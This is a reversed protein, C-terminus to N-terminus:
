DGGEGRILRCEDYSGCDYCKEPDWNKLACEEIDMISGGEGM